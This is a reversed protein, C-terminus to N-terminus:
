KTATHNQTNSSFGLFLPFLYITRCLIHKMRLPPEKRKEKKGNLFILMTTTVAHMHSGGVIIIGRTPYFNWTQHMEKM